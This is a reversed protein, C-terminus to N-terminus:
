KGAPFGSSMDTGVDPDPEPYDTSMFHAGSALAADRRAIVGFRAEVTYVDASRGIRALPRPRARPDGRVPGGMSSDAVVAWMGGHLVGDGNLLEDRVTLSVEIWGAGGGTIDLGLYNYSPSIMSRARELALADSVETM